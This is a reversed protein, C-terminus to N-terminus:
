CFVHFTMRQRIPLCFLNKLIDAIHSFTNIFKHIRAATNLTMQWHFLTSDPIGYSLFYCYDICVAVLSYILQSCVDDSLM